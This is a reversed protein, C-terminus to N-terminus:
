WHMRTKLTLNWTWRVRKWLPSSTWTQLSWPTHLLCPLLCASPRPALEASKAMQSDVFASLEELRGLREKFMTDEDSVPPAVPAPTSMAMLEAFDDASDTEGRDPAPASASTGVLFAMEDASAAEDCVVDFLGRLTQSQSKVSKFMELMDKASMCKRWFCDVCSSMMHASGESLEDLAASVNAETLPAPLKLLKRKACSFSDREGDVAMLSQYDTESNHPDEYLVETAM